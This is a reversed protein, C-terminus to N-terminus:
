SLKAAVALVAPSAVPSADLIPMIVEKGEKEGKNKNWGFNAINVAPPNPCDAAEWLIVQLHASRQHLFVNRETPPPTKLALPTHTREISTM